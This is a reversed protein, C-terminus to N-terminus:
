KTQIFEIIYKRVISSLVKRIRKTDGTIPETIDNFIDDIISNINNGMNKYCIEDPGVKSLYSNFRNQNMLNIYNDYNNKSKPKVNELMESCKWKVRYDRELLPNNQNPNELRIVVGEAINETNESDHQTSLISKFTNVDFDAYIDEWVGRVVEPVRNISYKDTFVKIEDWKLWRGNIVIDFVIFDNKPTYNAFSGKQIAVADSAKEGNYNGGYYEGLLRIVHIKSPNPFMDTIMSELRDKYHEILKDSNFFKEGDNIFTSRKGVKITIQNQENIIIWFQFNSGHIKETLVVRNRRFPGLNKQQFGKISAYPEYEM